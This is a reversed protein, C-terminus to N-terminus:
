LVRAPSEKTRIGGGGEKRGTARGKSRTEDRKEKAYRVTYMAERVRGHGEAIYEFLIGNYDKKKKQRVERQAYVTGRMVMEPTTHGKRKAL